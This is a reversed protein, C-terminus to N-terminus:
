KRAEKPDFDASYELEWGQIRVREYITSNSFGVSLAALKDVNVNVFDKIGLKTSGETLFTVSYDGLSTDIYNGYQAVVLSFGGQIANIWVKHFKKDIVPKGFNIFSSKYDFSIATKHNSYDYKTGTFKQMWLTPSTLSSMLLLDDATALIGGAGDVGSWQYWASRVAKGAEAYDYVFLTSTTGPVFCLYKDQAKFNTAVAKRFNSEYTNDKFKDEIGYGLFQPKTGATVTWFGKDADMFVISGKVQSIAKHCAAGVDTEFIELSLSNTAISGTLYGTSRDKFIFFSDKNMCMGRIEDNFSTSVLFEHLGDQSFGEPSNDSVWYISQFDCLNAETYYWPPYVFGTPWKSTTNLDVDIVPYQYGIYDTPVYPRGAQILTDQWSSLYRCARPLEAGSTGDIPIPTLGDYAVTSVSADPLGDMVIISTSVSTSVHLVSVDALRYLTDGNKLTRYLRCFAGYIPAPAWLSPKNEISFQPAQLNQPDTVEGVWEDPVYAANIVLGTPFLSDTPAAYANVLNNTIIFPSAFAGTKRFCVGHVALTKNFTITTAAVSTVEYYAWSQGGYAFVVSTNNHVPVRLCQGVKVNHGTEVIITKSGAGALTQDGNVKCSFVPFLTSQPAGGTGVAPISLEIQGDTGLSFLDGSLELDGCVEVGSADVVCLQKGYHYEGTLIKDIGADSLTTSGAGLGNSFTIRPMGARGVCYGDYKMPFGGDTIYISNNLSTWTPGEYDDNAAQSVVNPFPVESASPSPVREWYWCPNYVSGSVESTIVTDLTYAFCTSSGVSTGDEDVVDATLGTLALANISGKLTYVTVSEAFSISGLIAGASNYFVIKWSPTGTEDYFVSYNDVTGATKTLKLRHTRLKNLYGTAAIGLIQTLSEGTNIDRYKYEMLAAESGVAPIKHQFGNCKTLEDQYNYQFNDGARAYKPNQMLKNSRSDLGGFDNYHPDLAHPM